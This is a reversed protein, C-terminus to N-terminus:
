SAAEIVLVANGGGFALSQSIGWTGALQRNDTQILPRLSLELDSELCGVTGPTFGARLAILTLIAEIGGAAGLTHGTLGKTSVVVLEETQPFIAALAATEAKDNAKTGTGHANILAPVLKESGCDRLAQRLAAKLGRGEPHPATPHWADAACGYGRVWGLPQVQRSFSSEQRELVMVGAGEGLNLGQRNKNFPRCAEKDVLMLSAFGNYAVRSLADAGGAIAIDCQGTALWNRAVGIADTGSACANNIVASPGSTGLIRHLASAVNGALHFQIPGLDPALGKQWASFYEENHFTCGVTTGLAIGVRVSQLYPVSVGAQILAEAAASCALLVTRSVSERSFQPSTEVVLRCARESFCDAPAAFVPYDLVTNFLYGPVPHCNVVARGLNRWLREVDAGGGSLCGVGTVAVPLSSSVTNIRGDM